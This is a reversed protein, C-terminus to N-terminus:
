KKRKSKAQQRNRLQAITKVGRREAKTPPAPNNKLQAERMRQVMSKGSSLPSSVVRGDALRVKLKGDPQIISEAADRLSMPKSVGKRLNTDRNVLLMMAQDLTM